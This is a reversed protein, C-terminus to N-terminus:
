DLQDELMRDKTKLLEALDECEAKLDGIEVKMNEEALETEERVKAM